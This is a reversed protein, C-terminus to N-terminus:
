PRFGRSIAIMPRIVSLKLYESSRELLRKQPKDRERLTFM